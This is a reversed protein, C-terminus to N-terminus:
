QQQVQISVDMSENMSSTGSGMRLGSIPSADKYDLGTAVRIYRDDPSIGNSVDFGVWGIDPIYAEAWAHTAEQDIRDNMMLYGSVYRAPFGMKRVASVFIHAHDQCVGNSAILAEEATTEAHTEGTMYPVIEGILRSLAHMMIVETEYEARGLQKILKQVRSGAETLPTSRLFFWLPAFGLNQGIIGHLDTTEVEGECTISIERQGSDISVLLTHNNFQDDFELEKVGGDVTVDWRNVAQGVGSRPMLRLQQLAYHVPEEFHYKTLHSIKLLM